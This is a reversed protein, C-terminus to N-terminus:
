LAVLGIVRQNPLPGPTKFFSRDRWAHRDRRIFQQVLFTEVDRDTLSSGFYPSPSPPPPFPHPGHSWYYASSAVRPSAVRRSLGARFQGRTVCRRVGRVAVSPRAPRVSPRVFASPAAAGDGESLGYHKECGDRQAGGAGAGTREEGADPKRRTPQRGYPPPVATPDYFQSTM